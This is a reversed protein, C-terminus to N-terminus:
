LESYGAKGLKVEAETRLEETISLVQELDKVKIRLKCIEAKKDHLADEQNKIIKLLSSESESNNNPLLDKVVPVMKIVKEINRLSPLKVNEEKSEPNELRKIINEITRTESGRHTEVKKRLLEKLLGLEETTLLIHHM